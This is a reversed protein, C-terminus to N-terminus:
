DADASHRNIISSVTSQSCGLLNAVEDQNRGSALARQVVAFQVDKIVENLSHRESGFDMNMLVRCAENLLSEAEQADRAQLYADREPHKGKSNAGATALLEKLSHLNDPYGDSLLEYQLREKIKGDMFGLQRALSEGLEVVDSRSGLTPLEIQLAGRLGEGASGPQMQGTRYTAAIAVDRREDALMMLRQMEAESWADLWRILLMAGDPVEPCQAPDHWIVKEGGRWAAFQQCAWWKGTGTAGRMLVRPPQKSNTAAKYLAVYKDAVIADDVVTEKLLGKLLKKHEKDPLDSPKLLKPYKVRDRERKNRLALTYPPFLEIVGQERSTEFLRSQELRLSEAALMLTLHMAPTGSTLHFVVEDVSDSGSTPIVEWVQKYLAPLDTPGEPMEIKRRELTLGALGLEPLQERLKECFQARADGDRDDDFLILRTSDASINPKQLKSDANSVADLLRLIPSKDAGHPEQFKLDTNGIFSLILRTLKAM